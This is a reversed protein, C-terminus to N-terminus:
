SQSMEISRALVVDTDGLIVSHFHLLDFFFRHKTRVSSNVRLLWIIVM